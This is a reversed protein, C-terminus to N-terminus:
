SARMTALATELNKALDEKRGWSCECSIGGTYGIERLADFYARYHFNRAPDSGPFARSTHEAIHCHKLLDGALRISCPTERGMMMHFIDALQRLRPSGVDNCIQVGQWVFNVINSENPRLPEIVVAVSKLDSVRKCLQRCFETYQEAGKEVDPVDKRNKALYDGPVNRAGGSGFVVTKVGVEEARRLAIEAYDLAPGHDAAPGTLRFKGPIFGNCSRLPVALNAIVDRQRKWDDGGKTPMLSSGVDREVFDFGVSKLLPADSLPRCAGFLIRGAGIKSRASACGSMGAAAASALIFERRNM